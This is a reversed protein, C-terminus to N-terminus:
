RLAKRGIGVLDVLIRRFPAQADLMGLVAAAGLRQRWLMVFSAPLQLGAAALVRATAEALEGAYASSWHFDGHTALPRALAREWDRHSLSALSDPRRLIGSHALAM